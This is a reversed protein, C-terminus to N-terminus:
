KSITSEPLNRDTLIQKIKEICALEAAYYTPSLKDVISDEEETIFFIKYGIDNNDNETTGFHEVDNMDWIMAEFKGSRDDELSYYCPRIISVLNYEKRYKALISQNDTKLKEFEFHTKCYEGAEHIGMGWGDKLTGIARLRDGYEYHLQACDHWYRYSLSEFDKKLQETDQM